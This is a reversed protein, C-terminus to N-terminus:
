SKIISRLPCYSYSVETEKARTLCERGIRLREAIWDKMLSMIVSDVEYPMMEAVIAKGGDDCDTLDEVVMQVLVKELKGATQLVQISENTLSTIRAIYQKLVVGFCNHLTAVAVAAPVPHWRKLLPCYTEKEFIALTETKKALQVLFENPNEDAELVMGEIGESGTEYAQVAHGLSCLIMHSKKFSCSIYDILKSILFRNDLPHPLNFAINVM